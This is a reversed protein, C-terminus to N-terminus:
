LKTLCINKIMTFLEIDISKLTNIKEAINKSFEAHWPDADMLEAFIQNKIKSARDIISTKIDIEREVFETINPDNPMFAKVFSELERLGNIMDNYRERQTTEYHSVFNELSSVLRDLLQINGWLVEDRQGVSEVIAAGYLFTDVDPTLFKTLPKSVGYQHCNENTIELDSLRSINVCLFLRHKMTLLQLIKISHHDNAVLYFKNDKTSLLGHKM